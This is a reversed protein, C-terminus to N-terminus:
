KMKYKCLLQLVYIREGSFPADSGAFQSLKSQDLRKQEFTIMKKLKPKSLDKFEAYLRQLRLARQDVHKPESISINSYRELSAFRKAMEANMDSPHRYEGHETKIVEVEKKEIVYKGHEWYSRGTEVM